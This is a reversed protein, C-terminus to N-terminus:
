VLRVAAPASPHGRRHPLGGSSGAMLTGPGRRGIAGHPDAGVRSPDVWPGEDEPDMPNLLHGLGHESCKRVLVGGNRSRNFMAYRKASIARCWLQRRQGSKADLNEDELELVSGPV